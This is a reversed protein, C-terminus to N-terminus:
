NENQNSEQHNSYKIARNMFYRSIFALFSLNLHNSYKIVRNMFYRSILILFSLNLYNKGREKRTLADLYLGSMPPCKYRLCGM